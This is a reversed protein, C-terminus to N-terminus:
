LRPPVEASLSASTIAPSIAVGATRYRHRLRAIPKDVVILLLYSILLTLIVGSIVTGPHYASGFYVEGPTRALLHFLYISYSLRGLLVIPPSALIRRPLSAQPDTLIATFLPMLALGQISYRYTERFNEDRFIFTSLLTAFGLLRCPKGRLISVAAPGLDTEFLVRLLAGYLISDIRCDTAM